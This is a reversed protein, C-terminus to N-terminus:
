AIKKIYSVIASKIEDFIESASEAAGYEIVKLKCNKEFIQPM